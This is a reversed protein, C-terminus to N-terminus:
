FFLFKPHYIIDPLPTTPTTIALTTRETAIVPANPYKRKGTTNGFM